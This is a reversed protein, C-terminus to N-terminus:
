RKFLKQTKVITKLTYIRLQEHVHIQILPNLRYQAQPSFKVLYIHSECIDTQGPENGLFGNIQSKEM